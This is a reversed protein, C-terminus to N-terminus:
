VVLYQAYFLKGSRSSFIICSRAAPADAARSNELAVPDPEPEPHRLALCGAHTNPCANKDRDSDRLAERHCTGPGHDGDPHPFGSARGAAADAARRIGGSRDVLAHAIPQRGRPASRQAKSLLAVGSSVSRVLRKLPLRESHPAFAPM